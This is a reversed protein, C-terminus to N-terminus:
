EDEQEIGKVGDSISLGKYPGRFGQKEVESFKLHKFNRSLFNNLAANSRCRGRIQKGFKVLWWMQRVTITAISRGFVEEFEKAVEAGDFRIM